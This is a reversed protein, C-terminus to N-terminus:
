RTWEAGNEGQDDIHQLLETILDVLKEASDAALKKDGGGLALQFDAAKSCFDNWSSIKITL